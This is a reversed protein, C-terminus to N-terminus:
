LNDMQDAIKRAIEDATPLGALIRTQLRLEDTMEATGRAVTRGVEAAQATATAVAAGSVSSTAVAESAAEVAQATAQSSQSDSSSKGGGGGSKGSSGSSGSQGGGSSGSGAYPDDPIGGGGTASGSENGQGYVPGGFARRSGPLLKLRQLRRVTEADLVVPGNNSPIIWEGAHVATIREPDLPGGLARYGQENLYKDTAGANPNSWGTVEDGSINLKDELSTGGVQVDDGGAGQAFASGGTSRYKLLIDIVINRPLRALADALTNTTNTAARANNAAANVNNAFRAIERDAESAEGKFANLSEALTDGTWVAKSWIDIAEGFTANGNAFESILGAYSSTFDATLGVSPM